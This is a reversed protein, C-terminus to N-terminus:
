RAATAPSWSGTRSTRTCCRWATPARSGACRTADGEGRAHRAESPRDPPRAGRHRHRLAPRRGRGRAPGAARAANDIIGNHVVAVRGNGDVHPHANVDNPRATPRGAPTASASRAPSGSRCHRRWTACGAPTRTCRSPESRGRARRRRGLRLRPVRAPGTGGAPHPAAQQSGVYGVIGCMYHHRELNSHATLRLRDPAAAARPSNPHASRRLAPARRRAARLDRRQPGGYTKLEAHRRRVYEEITETFYALVDAVVRRADDASLGTTRSVQEALEDVPGM